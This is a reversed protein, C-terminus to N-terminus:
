DKWEVTVNGTVTERWVEDRNAPNIQTRGEDDLKNRLITGAECDYEVVQHQEVGDLMGRIRQAEEWTVPSDRKDLDDVSLKAPPAETFM